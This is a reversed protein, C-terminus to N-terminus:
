QKAIHGSLEEIRKALLEVVGRLEGVEKLITAESSQHTNPFVKILEEFPVRSIALGEEADKGDVEPNRNAPREADEESDAQDRNLLWTKMWNHKPAQLISEYFAICALPIFFVVSMVYRNLQFSTYM